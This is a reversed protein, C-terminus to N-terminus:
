NGKGKRLFDNIEKVYGLERELVGVKEEMEKKLVELEATKAELMNKGEVVEKEEVRTIGDQYQSLVAFFDYDMAVCIEKLFDTQVSKYGFLRSVSGRSIKLKISLDLTTMKKEKAVKEIFYGIAIDMIIYNKKWFYCKNWYVGGRVESM